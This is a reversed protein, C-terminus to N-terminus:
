ENSKRVIQALKGKRRQRRWLVGGGISYAEGEIPHAHLLMHGSRGGGDFLGILCSRRVGRSRDERGVVAEPSVDMMEVGWNWCM